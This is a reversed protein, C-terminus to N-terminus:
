LGTLLKARIEFSFGDRLKSRSPKGSKTKKAPAKKVRLVAAAAAVPAAAQAAKATLVAM